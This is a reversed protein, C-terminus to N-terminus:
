ARGGSANEVFVPDVRQGEIVYDQGVTIINVTDPLGVVWFGEADQNAIRVPLFKVTNTEDIARVGIAGNDALTLVGPSVRHAVVPDLPIRAEATVGARLTEDPNPVHIEVTFTRTEESGTRSVFTVTGEVTEGTVLDVEATKGVNVKAIDRETVQGTVVIPNADVITVCLGGVAIVSGTEAIPDQVVGAIPSRVITREMEQEAAAILAQAADLAARTAAVRTESEFGRGQLKTAADFELEAKAFEAKARALDATRVGKDIECLIDGEEVLSGRSVHRKNLRGATEAAVTVLADARTRGRITLSQPREQSSITEVRVRFLAREADSREAPPRVEAQEAAGSIVTSGTLMWAAVGGGIVLALLLRALM